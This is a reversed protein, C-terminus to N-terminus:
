FNYLLPVARQVSWKQAYKFYFMFNAFLDEWFQFHAHDHKRMFIVSNTDKGGDKRRKKNREKEKKCQETDTRYQM